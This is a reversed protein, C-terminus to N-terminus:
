SAGRDFLCVLEGVTNDSHRQTVCKALNIGEELIRVSGDEPEVLGGVPRSPSRIAVAKLEFEMHSFSSGTLSGDM